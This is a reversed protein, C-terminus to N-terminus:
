KKRPALIHGSPDVEFVHLEAACLGGRCGSSIPRHYAPLYCEHMWWHSCGTHSCRIMSPLASWLCFSFSSVDLSKLWSLNQLFPSNGSFYWWFDRSLSGYKYTWLWQRHRHTHTLVLSTKVDDFMNQKTVPPSRHASPPPLGGHQQSVSHLLHPRSPYPSHCSIMHSSHSCTM